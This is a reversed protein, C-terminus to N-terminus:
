SKNFIFVNEKRDGLNKKVGLKGRNNTISGRGTKVCNAGKKGGLKRQSQTANLLKVRRDFVGEYIIKGGLMIEM